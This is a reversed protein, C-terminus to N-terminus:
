DSESDDETVESFILFSAVTVAAFVLGAPIGGALEDSAGAAPGVRDAVRPAADAQAFAQTAALSLGVAAAILTKKM